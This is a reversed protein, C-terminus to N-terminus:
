ELSLPPIMDELFGQRMGQGLNMDPNPPGARRLVGHMHTDHCMDCPQIFMPKNRQSGPNDCRGSRCYVLPHWKFM